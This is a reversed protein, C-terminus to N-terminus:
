CRGPPLSGVFWEVGSTLDRTSSLRLPRTRALFSVRSSLAMAHIVAANTRNKRTIKKRSKKVQEVYGHNLFQETEDDGETETHDVTLL